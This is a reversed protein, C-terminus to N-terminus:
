AGQRLVDFRQGVFAGERWWESRVGGQPLLMGAYVKLRKVSLTPRGPPNANPNTPDDLMGPAVKNPTALLLENLHSKTGKPRGWVFHQNSRTSPKQGEALAARLAETTGVGADTLDKLLAAVRKENTDAAREPHLYQEARALLAPLPPAIKIGGTSHAVRIRPEASDWALQRDRDAGEAQWGCDCVGYMQKRDKGCVACIEVEVEVVAAAAGKRHGGDVELVIACHPVVGVWSIHETSRMCVLDGVRLEGFAVHQERGRTRLQRWGQGVLCDRLLPGGEGDNLMSLWLSEDGLKDVELLVRKLGRGNVAAAARRCAERIFGASDCYFRGNTLHSRNVAEEEGQLRRRLALLTRPGFVGDRCDRRQQIKDDEWPSDAQPAHWTDVLEGSARLWDQLARVTAPRWIGDANGAGPFLGAQLAGEAGAESSGREQLYRQLAAVTRPGRVGREAALEATASARGGATLPAEALLLQLASITLEDLSDPPLAALDVGLLLGWASRAAAADALEVAPEFVAGLRTPRGMACGPFPLGAHSRRHVASGVRCDSSLEASRAAKWPVARAAGGQHGGAVTKPLHFDFSLTEPAGVEFGPLRFVGGCQAHDWGGDWEFGRDVASWEARRHMFWAESEGSRVQEAWQAALAAAAAALPSPAGDAAALPSSASDAGSM